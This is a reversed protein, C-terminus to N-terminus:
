VKFTINIDVTERIQEQILLANYVVQLISAGGGIMYCEMGIVKIRSNIYIRYASSSSSNCVYIIKLKRISLKEYLEKIKHM